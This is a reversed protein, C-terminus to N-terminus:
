PHRQLGENNTLIVRKIDVRPRGFNILLCLPLHTAKLYNLCQATHIEDFFKVAKIELLVMSEVVVDAVYSGVVADDYRVEMIQQQAVRLGQKRLEIVLANEYIKELFGCGLRNGVTFACGIIKETIRDIESKHGDTNMQPKM